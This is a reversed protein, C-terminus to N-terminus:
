MRKSKNFEKIAESPMRMYRYYLGRCFCLGPDNVNPSKKEAKDILIKAKSLDGARKYM